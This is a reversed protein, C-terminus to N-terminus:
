EGARRLWEAAARILAARHAASGTAYLARFVDREDPRVIAARPNALVVWPAGMLEELLAIYRAEPLSDGREWSQPTGDGCKEGREEIWLAVQRPNHPATSKRARYAEKNQALFARFQPPFGSRKPDQRAASRPM